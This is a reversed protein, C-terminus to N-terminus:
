RCATWSFTKRTLRLYDAKEKALVPTLTTITEGQDHLVSLDVVGSANSREAAIRARAGAVWSLNTCIDSTLKCVADAECTQRFSAMAGLYQVWAARNENTVGCGAGRCGNAKGQADLGPPPSPAVPVPVPQDAHAVAGLLLVAFLTRVSIVVAMGEEYRDAVRLSVM